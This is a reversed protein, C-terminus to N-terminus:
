SSNRKNIKMSNDRKDEVIETITSTNQQFFSQTKQSSKKAPYISTVITDTMDNTDTTDTTDKHKRKQGPNKNLKMQDQLGELLNNHIIMSLELDESQSFSNKITSNAILLYLDAADNEMQKRKSKLINRLEHFELIMAVQNNPEIFELILDLHKKIFNFNFSVNQIEDLLWSHFQLSHSVKALIKSFNNAFERSKGAYLPAVYESVLNTVNQPNLAWKISDSILDDTKQDSSDNISFNLDLDCVLNYAYKLKFEFPINFDFNLIICTIAYITCENFYKAKSQSYSLKLERANRQTVTLVNEQEKSDLCDLVQNIAKEPLHFLPFINNKLLNRTNVKM